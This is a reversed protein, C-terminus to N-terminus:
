PKGTAAIAELLEQQPAPLDLSTRDGGSFGPIDVSMEEGELQPSIGLAMVVADANRAAAVANEKLNPPIWLLHADAGWTGQFYEMTIRYERGQELRVSTLQMKGRKWGDVLLKGDFFLRYGDDASAGLQYDGTVPPTLVGTWRISFDRAGLQPIPAAESWDFDVKSDIRARVPAGALDRGQFYEGRLGHETSGHAPHLVESPIPLGIGPAIVAGPSYAVNDKGFRARMGSLVTVAQSPTGNYNGLLVQMSDANPGIVAITHIKKKFPLVGDNKLLVMSKRAAKLALQRHQPSDNEPM